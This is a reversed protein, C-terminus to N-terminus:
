GHDSPFDAKRLQTLRIVSSSLPGMTIFDEVVELWKGEVVVQAEQVVVESNRFSSQCQRSADAYRPDELHQKM